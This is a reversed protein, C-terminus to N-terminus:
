CDNLSTGTKTSKSLADYVIRVKMTMAEKRVVARYPLYYVKPAAELEVVGEQM